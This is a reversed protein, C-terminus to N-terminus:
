RNYVFETWKFFFPNKRCFGEKFYEITIYLCGGREKLAFLVCGYYLFQKASPQNIAKLSLAPYTIEEGNNWREPTWAKLHLDTFVDQYESEYAGVGSITKSYKGVGQFLLNVEFGM